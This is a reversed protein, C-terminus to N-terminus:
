EAVEGISVLYAHDVPNQHLYRDEYDMRGVIGFLALLAIVALIELVLDRLSTSREEMTKRGNRAREMQRHTAGAKQTCITHM